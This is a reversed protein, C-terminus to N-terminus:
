AESMLDTHTNDISANLQARRTNRASTLTLVCVEHNFYVDTGFWVKDLRNKFTDMESAMVVKEPLNNWQDTVRIRFSYKRSDLGKILRQKSVNYPHGRARSPQLQLFGDVVDQDYKGHTMKWMEIMDGRYRRYALTPLKLVELRERYSKNRLGPVGWKTARRQVGELARIYQLQYPNWVAAAYELHPRVITTFLQRFMDKDMYEFTRRIMGVLRNGLKVKDSIHQSFTLKSDITVGLDKEESSKELLQGNMRYEHKYTPVIRPSTIRMSVCKGPHFQLLSKDTWEVMGNLDDQLADSDKDSYIANFTKADDAYLFIDSITENEVMTNIYVVFLVPGLVSGQPIGSIVDHWDSSQGNVLVRQRRNSLFDGIWSLVPDCVGYYDLVSILRRHPVTDFAKKFDCYIVDVCGGSDLIETWRDLVKLLQLVTSRGALFGFQKKTLFKNDKMYKVLSDRIYSELLKCAISTLSVPRYNGAVKKDGKKFISTINADRWPDPITGTRVSTRFIFLLPKVLVQRIEMLVRPHISDPGPSKNTKLNSLKTMLSEETLELILRKTIEPKLPPSWTGPPERTQVSSFFKAFEKAKEQDSSTMLDKDKDDSLYLDPIKPSLKTKSNVYKYFMKPNSKSKSAIKQECLKTAKRTLRRLQNCCQRYETYVKGDSTDLFRKWLRYKKRKKALTKRDLPVSFRKCGTKIIKRPVCIKEAEAYKTSFVEWQKNVDDEFESFIHDWDINLMDKMKGYDAKDYMFIVKDPELVPICRYKVHLVSHDSSGLPAELIIEEVAEEQNTLVLDLISPRATGRGRTVVSVHQTLFCDLTCNIFKFELSNESHACVNDWSIGPLNFDGIYVTHKYNRDCLSKMANLLKTNSSLDSSGSRYVNSILLKEERDLKIECCLLEVPYDSDDEFIDTLDVPNYVLSKHFYMFVGRGTDEAGLKNNHELTYDPIKYEVEELTRTFNKPKTETIAIIDPKKEKVISKLEQM